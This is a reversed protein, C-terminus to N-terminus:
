QQNELRISSTLTHWIPTIRTLRAAIHGSHPELEERKTRMVSAQRIRSPLAQKARGALWQKMDKKGDAPEAQPVRGGLMGLMGHLQARAKAWQM